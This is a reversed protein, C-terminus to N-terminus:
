PGVTSSRWTGYRRPTSDPSTPAAAPPHGPRYAGKDLRCRTEGHRIHGNTRGIREPIAAASGPRRPYGRIKRDSCGQNADVRDPRSRRRGPGPTRDPDPGHGGRLGTGCRGAMRGPAPLPAILAFLELDTSDVCWSRLM